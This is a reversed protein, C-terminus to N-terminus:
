PVSKMLSAQAEEAHAGRPNLRLYERFHPDAAVPDHDSDRLLVALAFHAEADEPEAGVVAELNSRAAESDGIAEYVTGLVFRVRVDNPHKKLYQEAYEIAVRYRGDSLCVTLLLPLVKAENKGQALAAAFYEEARTTDGISAFAKGRDILKDPAEERKMTAMRAQVNTGPSPACAALSGLSGTMLGAAACTTLWGATRDRRDALGVVRIM